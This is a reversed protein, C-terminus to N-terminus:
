RTLPATELWKIRAERAAIGATPVEVLRSLGMAVGGAAALGLKPEASALAGFYLGAGVVQTLLFVVGAGPRQAYFHGSGFGVAASLGAAVGSDPVAAEMRLLEARLARAHLAGEDPRPPAPAPGLAQTSLMPAPGVAPVPSPAERVFPALVALVAASAGRESLCVHDAPSLVPRLQQLTEIVVQEGIGAGLMAGIDECPGAWAPGAAGGFAVLAALRCGIGFRRKGSMAAM